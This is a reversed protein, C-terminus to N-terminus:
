AARVKIRVPAGGGSNDIAEDAYSVIAGTTVAQLKGAGNSELAAGRAVNAGVELFANVLAGSHAFVFKVTAGTLYVFDIDNGILEDETAFVVQAVTGAATSHVQVGSAILEILDGPTVSGTGVAEDVLYHMHSSLMITAHAM